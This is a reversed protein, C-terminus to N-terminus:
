SVDSDSNTPETVTVNATVANRADIMITPDKYLFVELANFARLLGDRGNYMRSWKWWKSVLYQTYIFLPRDLVPPYRYFVYRTPDVKRCRAVFDEDTSWALQVSNNVVDYIGYLEVLFGTSLINFSSHEAENNIVTVFEADLALKVDNMMHYVKYLQRGGRFQVDIVSLRKALEQNVCDSLDGSDSVTDVTLYKGRQPLAVVDTASDPGTVLTWFVTNFLRSHNTTGSHDGTRTKPHSFVPLPDVSSQASIVLSGYVHSLEETSM